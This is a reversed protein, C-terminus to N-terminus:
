IQFYISGAPKGDADNPANTGFTIVGDTGAFIELMGTLPNVKSGVFSDVGYAIATRQMLMLDNIEGPVKSSSLAVENLVTAGDYARLFTGASTSEVKQVVRDLLNLDIM